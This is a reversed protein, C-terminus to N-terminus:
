VLLGPCIELITVIEEIKLGSNPDSLRKKLYKKGFEEYLTSSIRKNIMVNEPNRKAMIFLSSFSYVGKKNQKIPNKTLKTMRETTYGQGLYRGTGTKKNENTNPIEMKM